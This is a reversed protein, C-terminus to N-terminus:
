TREQAGDKKKGSIMCRSLEARRPPWRVVSVAGSCPLRLWLMRLTAARQPNPADVAHRFKRLLLRRGRWMEVWAAEYRALDGAPSGDDLWRAFGIADDQRRRAGATPRSQAYDEFRSEFASGLQEVTRPLLERVEGARKRLLSRAFADVQDLPLDAPSHSGAEVGVARRALERQLAALDM